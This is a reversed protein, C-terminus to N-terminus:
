STAQKAAVIASRLADRHRLGLWTLAIVLAIEDTPLCPVQVMGIV